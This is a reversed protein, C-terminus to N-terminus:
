YNEPPVRGCLETFPCFKCSEAKEAQDFATTEDFIEAIMGFLGSRFDAEVQRYDNVECGDIEIKPIAGNLSMIRFPYVAPLIGKHTNDAMDNYAICYTLLQFVANDDHRERKFLNETKAPTVKDGGTKYDIFRLRGDHLRDVRDISMKFNVSLKDNIKWAPPSKVQMEGKIFSFPVTKCQERELELMRRVYLGIVSSIMEGEANMAYQGDSGKGGFYIECITEKILNDLGTEDNIFSSIIDESIEKGEYQGYLKEVVKHVITGYDAATIYDTIDEEGRLNRVYRLYFRLRCNKYEKLASASLYGNGGPMFRRLHALVEPSKGVCIPQPSNYDSGLQLSRFTVAIKNKGPLEIHALQAIYRSAEGAGFTGTRSDYILRVHKARSLLRYFYYTYLSDQRDITTMGFGTRLNNPIMTKLYNKRPFSNENMSLIVVNDFDISRTELVGMVQLGRLPTGQMDIRRSQMLKEFLGFYTSENMTIDYEAILGNLRELGQRFYDLMELEPLGGQPAKGTAKLATGLGDILRFMYDCIENPNDLAKVPSFLYDLAPYNEKLTQADLNFQKSEALEKKLAEAAEPAIVQIHPHSLLELVDAYYYHIRGRIERARLQMSIVSHLMSAFPTSSFPLGMTINVAAISEPLSMLVPTLLNEDPLVVASNIANAASIYGEENWKELIGSVAKAQAIASPVAIVEVEPLTEVAQYDFDEPMPFSRKLARLRFGEHGESILRLMPTDFDWFFDAVGADKLRKLMLVESNSLDNFGVFGYRKEQLKEYDTDRVAAVAERYQGGSSDKGRSHLAEKFADYLRGLLQWLAVFQAEANEGATNGVHSWFETVVETRASEGWLQRIIQKQEDDLYDANIEKLDKLNKFLKSADVLQRDVDEFDDLIMGGWFIFKDFDRLQEARGLESLLKRYCDYLLFLQEDRQMEASDAFGAVFNGMTMFRPMFRPRTSTKVLAEQMYKKMFMASRKNPFVLTLGSMDDTNTLYYSAVQELFKKETAM